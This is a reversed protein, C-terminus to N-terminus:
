LTVLFSIFLFFVRHRPSFLLLLPLYFLEFVCIITDGRSVNRFILFSLLLLFFSDLYFEACQFLFATQNKSKKRFAVCIAGVFVLNSFVPYLFYACLPRVDNGQM